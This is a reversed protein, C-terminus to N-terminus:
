VIGDNDDFFTIVGGDVPRGAQLHKVLAGIATRGDGDQSIALDAAVLDHESFISDHDLKKTSVATRGTALWWRGAEALAASAGLRARPSSRTEM